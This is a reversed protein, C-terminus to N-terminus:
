YKIRNEGYYQLKGQANSSSSSPKSSGQKGKTQTEM